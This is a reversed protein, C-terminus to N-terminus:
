PRNLTRELATRLITGTTTIHSATRAREALADPPATSRGAAPGSEWQDTWEQLAQLHPQNTWHVGRPLPTWLEDPLAVVLRATLGAGTHPGRGGLTQGATPAGAPIPDWDRLLGTADLEARLAPGLALARTPRHRGTDRHEQRAARIRAQATRRAAGRLM